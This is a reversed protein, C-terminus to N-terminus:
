KLSFIQSSGASYFFEFSYKRSIMAMNSFIEAHWYPARYSIKASFILSYVNKLNFNTKATFNRDFTPFYQNHLFVFVNDM